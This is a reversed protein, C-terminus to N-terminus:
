AEQPVREWLRRAVGAPVPPETGPEHSEELSRGEGRDQPEGEGKEQTPSGREQIRHRGKEQNEEKSYFCKRYCNRSMLIM